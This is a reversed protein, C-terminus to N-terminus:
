RKNNDYLLEENILGEIKTKLVYCDSDNKVYHRIYTELKKDFDDQGTQGRQKAFRILKIADDDRLISHVFLTPLQTDLSDNTSIVLDVAMIDAVSYFQESTLVAEIKSHPLYQKCQQMFLKQVGIGEDCVLTLVAPPTPKTESHVLEGGIHITIYAIDDDNMKISWANELISLCVKTMAFLDAYKDKIQDTLPNNSVIGYAKRFLLAKCHTLLQNLLLQKHKFCVHYDLEFADIFYSLVRRMDDYDHSELHMDRDKRYSLLLVAILSTEIEDLEIHFERKLNENLHRAIEYEKREKIPSFESLLDRQERESLGLNQYSLLQYPLTAVMFRIDQSNIKKGLLAQSVQLEGRIFSSIDDSFYSSLDAFDRLKDRMMAIFNPNSDTYITHLLKNLYQIKSLPHCDLYYGKSKTAQLKISYPEFSLRQRLENLDNLITNRSVANIQMLKEITVRDKAIAIYTISLLMREQISMVYSYDDLDALLTRCAAKQQSSLLIGIRPYSIIKPIESPLAENIKDLHYYVKRRSQNLVKSISMVTEPEELKILYSLLDYSNRDLIIM